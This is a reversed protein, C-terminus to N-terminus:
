GGGNIARSLAGGAGALAEKLASVQSPGPRQVGHSDARGIAVDMGRETLIAVDNAGMKALGQEALWGCDTRLRDITTVYGVDELTNQLARLPLQYARAISLASLIARRRDADIYDTQSM